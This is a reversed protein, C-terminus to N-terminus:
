PELVSTYIRKFNLGFIKKLDELAYGRSFLRRAVHKWRDPSNILDDSFDVEYRQTGDLYSDSGVGVHDIGIKEVMYDIHATLDDITAPKSSDKLLFRCITTAGVVGGTQAIAKLEEDSKNRGSPALAEANAHNATIPASSTEAADLTTRKGCHSVDVVMHLRNLEKVVSKGFPTLPLEDSKGGGGIENDGYTLQFARIGGEKYLSLTELSGKLDFASQVYFIIGYRGTALAIDFDEAKEIKMIVNKYKEAWRNRSELTAVRTTHAGANIGTLKKIAGPELPSIGKGRNMGLNVLGDIILSEGFLKEIPDGEDVPRNLKRRGAYGGGAQLLFGLGSVATLKLFEARNMRAREKM